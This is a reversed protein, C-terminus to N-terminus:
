NLNDFSIKLAKQASFVSKQSSSSLHNMISWLDSIKTKEARPKPCFVIISKKESLIRMTKKQQNEDYNFKIKVTLSSDSMFHTSWLTKLKLNSM